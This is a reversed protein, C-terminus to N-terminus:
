SYCWLVTAWVSLQEPYWLFQALQQRLESPLMSRGLDNTTILLGFPDGIHCASPWAILIVRGKGRFFRASLHQRKVNITISTVSIVTKLYPMHRNHSLTFVLFAPPFYRGSPSWHGVYGWFSSLPGEPAAHGHPRSTAEGFSLQRLTVSSHQTVSVQLLYPSFM